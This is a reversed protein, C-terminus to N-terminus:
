EIFKIDVISVDNDPYLLEEDFKFDPCPLKMDCIFGVNYFPDSAVYDYIKEISFLPMDYMESHAILDAGYKHKDSAMSALQNLLADSKLTNQLVIDSPETGTRVLHAEVSSVCGRELQNSLFRQTQYLNMAFKFRCIVRFKTSDGLYWNDPMSCHETLWARLQNEDRLVDYSIAKGELIDNTIVNDKFTYNKFQVGDIEFTDHANESLTIKGKEATIEIPSMKETIAWSPIIGKQGFAPYLNNLTLRFILKGSKKIPEECTVEPHRGSLIIKMYALVNKFEDDKVPDYSSDCAAFVIFCIALVLVISVCCIFSKKM